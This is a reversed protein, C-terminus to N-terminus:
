KRKPKVAKAAVAKAAKAVAPKPGPRQRALTRGLKKELSKV